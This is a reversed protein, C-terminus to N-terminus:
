LGEAPEEGENAPAPNEDEPKPGCFLAIIEDYFKQKMPFIGAFKGPIQRFVSQLEAVSQTNTGEPNAFLIAFRAEPNRLGNPNSKTANEETKWANSNFKSSKERSGCQVYNLVLCLVFFTLIQLHKPVQM